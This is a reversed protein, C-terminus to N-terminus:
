VFIINVHYVKITVYCLRFTHLTEQRLHIKKLKKLYLFKKLIRLIKTVQIVCLCVCVYNIFKNYKLINEVYKHITFNRSSLVIGLAKLRSENFMKFDKSHAKLSICFLNLFYFILCLIFTKILSSYGKPVAFNQNTNRSCIKKQM